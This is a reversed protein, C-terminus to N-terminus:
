TSGSQQDDLYTTLDEGAIECLEKFRAVDCWAKFTVPAVIEGDCEDQDEDDPDTYRHDAHLPPM